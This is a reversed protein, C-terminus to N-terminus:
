EDFNQPVLINCYYEWSQQTVNVDTVAFPQLFQEINLLKKKHKLSKLKDQQKQLSTNDLFKAHTSRYAKLAAKLLDRIQNYKEVAKECQFQISLDCHAENSFKDYLKLHDAKEKFLVDADDSLGKTYLAISRRNNGIRQLYTSNDHPMEFHIVAAKSSDSSTPIDIMGDYVFYMSSKKSIAKFDKTHEFLVEYYECIEASPFYIYVTQFKRYKVLFSLLSFLYVLKLPFKVPLYSHEQKSKDMEISQKIIAEEAIVDSLKIFPPNARTLEKLVFATTKSSISNSYFITQRSSKNPLYNENLEKLQDFLESSGYSYTMTDEGLHFIVCKASIKFLDPQKKLIPIINKLTSIVILTQEIEEGDVISILDDEIASPLNNVLIDDRLRELKKDSDVLILALCGSRKFKVAKYVNTVLPILYSLSCDEFLADMKSFVSGVACYECILDKGGLIENFVVSQTLSLFVNEESDRNLLDKKVSAHINNCNTIHVLKALQSSSSFQPPVIVGDHSSIAHSLAQQQNICEDLQSIYGEYTPLPNSVKSIKKKKSPPLSSINNDIIKKESVLSSSASPTNKENNTTTSKKKEKIESNSRKM